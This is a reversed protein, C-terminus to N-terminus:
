LAVGALHLGGHKFKSGQVTTPLLLQAPQMACLTLLKCFEINKEQAYVSRCNVTHAPMCGSPGKRHRVRVCRGFNSRYSCPSSGVRSAFGHGSLYLLTGGLATTSTPRISVLEELVDLERSWADLKDPPIEPPYLAVQSTLNDQARLLRMQVPTGAVFQGFGPQSLDCVVQTHVTEESIASARAAYTLTGSSSNQTLNCLYQVGSLASSSFGFGETQEAVFCKLNLVRYRTLKHLHSHNLM